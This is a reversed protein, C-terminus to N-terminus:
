RVTVKLRWFATEEGAAVPLTVERFGGAITERVQPSNWIGDTGRIAVPQWSGLDGSREIALNLFSVADTDALSFVLEFGGSAVPRMVPLRSYDGTKGPADLPLGMYYAVANPIGDGNEDSDMSLDNATSYGEGALQTFFAISDTASSTFIKGGSGVAILQRSSAALAQIGSPWVVGLDQWTIGDPSYFMSRGYDTVTKMGFHGTGMRALSAPPNAPGSLYSGTVGDPSEAIYYGYALFRDGVWEVAGFNVTTWPAEIKTWNVGNPSSYTGRDSVTLAINGSWALDHFDGTGIFSSTWNMGDTSFAAAGSPGVGIFREGAWIVKIISKAPPALSKTWNWLDTSYYAEGSDGLAVAMTGNWAVTTLRGISAPDTRHKTWVGGDTSSLLTARDGVVVFRDRLYDAGELDQALSRHRYTWQNGDDTSTAIYGDTGVAVLKSGFRAIDNVTYGRIGLVSGGEVNGSKRVWYSNTPTSEIREASGLLHFTGAEDRVYKMFEHGSPFSTYYSLTWNGGGSDAHLRGTGALRVLFQNQAPTWMVDIIAPHSAPKVAASWSSGEWSSLLTNNEGTAVFKGLGGYVVCTIDNSDSVANLYSLPERWKLGDTSYLIVGNEGVCTWNGDGHALSILGGNRSSTKTISCFHWDTGNTTAILGGSGALVTLNGVTIGDNFQWNTIRQQKTWRDGDQSFWITGFSGAAILGGPRVVVTNLDPRPDSVFELHHRFVSTQISGHKAGSGDGPDLSKGSVAVLMGEHYTGSSFDLQADNVAPQQSWTVGDVSLLSIGRACLAILGDPTEAVSRIDVTTGSNRQIWAIGDPSQFILGRRGTSIWGHSTHVISRLDAGEQINSAQWNIGDNSSVQTGGEGVGIFKGDHWAIGELFQATVGSRDTWRIGDTSSYIRGVRGVTVFLDPSAAVGNMTIDLGINGPEGGTPSALFTDGNSGVAVALDGRAVAARWSTRSDGGFRSTWEGGDMSEYASGSDGFSIYRSSTRVVAQQSSSISILPSSWSVGPRSRLIKGQPGTIVWGGPVAVADGGGDLYLSGARHWDRGDRSFIVVGDSCIGVFESGNSRVHDMPNYLSGTAMAGNVGRSEWGTAGDWLLCKGSSWIVAGHGRATGCLLEENVGTDLVSWTEGHDSSAYAAGSTGLAVVQGNGAVFVENFRATSGSNASQWTVGDSSRAFKGAHGVAIFASGSWVVSTLADTSGITTATWERGNTSSLAYGKAPFFGEQGVAVFRGNGYAISPLPRNGTQHVTTWTDGGDTSITLIGTGYSEAAHGSAVLMSGNSTVSLHNMAEPAQSRQQWFSGAMAPAASLDASVVAVILALLLLLRTVLYTPHFPPPVIGIRWGLDIKALQEGPFHLAGRRFPLSRVRATCPVSKRRKM